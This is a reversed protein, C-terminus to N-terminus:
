LKGEIDNMCALHKRWDEWKIQSALAGYQLANEEGYAADNKVFNKPHFLRGDYTIGIRLEQFSLKPVM